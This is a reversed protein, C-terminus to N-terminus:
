LGSIAVFECHHGCLGRKDFACVGADADPIAPQGDQEGNAARAHNGDAACIGADAAAGSLAAVHAAAM